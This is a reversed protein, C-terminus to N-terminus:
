VIINLALPLIRIRAPVEGLLEGDAQLQMKQTSRIEITKARKMTVKPHTLHTGKYVRPLSYLLDLKSINEIIMVDFLGDAIDANPATFMGGGGYRGNNMVVTCVRRETEEGDLILSIDKNRYTLITTLTGMLYSPLAGLSKYQQTTRRVIEADFGMGAFNVFLREATGGNKKYEVVGLDVTFKKPQLFCKCADEIKRPVGVTRIYDSGTGTSIIGLLADGISGSAYLGNVIENITGDGGVSVVMDYGKKAANKALEIAHGPAETIDHEFRLGHGKFLGMIRPWLRGTKGAGATPNVIVKAYKLNM